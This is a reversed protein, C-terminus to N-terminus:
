WDTWPPTDSVLFVFYIHLTNLLLHYMFFEFLSFRPAYWKMCTALFTGSLGAHPPTGHIHVDLSHAIPLQSPVYRPEPTTLSDPIIAFSCPCLTRRPHPM